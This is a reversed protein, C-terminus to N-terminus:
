RARPKKSLRNKEAEQDMWEKVKDKSFIKKNGFMVSPFEPRRALEYAKNMGIRLYQALENVTLYDPLDENRLKRIDISNGGEPQCKGAEVGCSLGFNFKMASNRNHLKKLICLMDFLIRRETKSAARFVSTFGNNFSGALEREKPALDGKWVGAVRREWVELNGM